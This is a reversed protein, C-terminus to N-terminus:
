LRGDNPPSAIGHEGTYDYDSRSVTMGNATAAGGDPDWGTQPNSGACRVPASSGYLNM